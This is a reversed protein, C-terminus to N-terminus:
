EYFQLVLTWIYAFVEIYGKENFENIQADTLRM